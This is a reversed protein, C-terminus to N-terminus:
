EEEKNNLDRAVEPSLLIENIKAAQDFTEDIKFTIQPTYRITLEKGMLKRIFGKADNLGKAAEDVNEGGLTMIYADCNKLDPSIDVQTVSITKGEILPNWLDGSEIIDILIKRIEQSVRLQRQSPEKRASKM